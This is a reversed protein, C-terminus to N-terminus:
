DIERVFRHPRERFGAQEYFAHAARREPRSTVDLRFCGQRRAEQEAAALLKTAIGNRRLEPRVVLATIRCSPEGRELLHITSLAIVGAVRGDLEAVLVASGPLARLRELRRRAEDRSTSYGLASMLEAISGADGEDAERMTPDASM